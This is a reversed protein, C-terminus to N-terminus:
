NFSQVDQKEGAYVYLDFIILIGAIPTLVKRIVSMSLRVVCCEGGGVVCFKGGGIVRFEGGGVVRCDRYQVVGM